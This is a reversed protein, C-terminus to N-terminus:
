RRVARGWRLWSAIAAPPGLWTLEAVIARVAGHGGGWEGPPLVQWEFPAASATMTWPWWLAVGRGPVGGSGHGFMDVLTHSMLLAGIFLGMALPTVGRRRALWAGLVGCLVAFTISHSWTRHWVSSPQGLVWVAFFDFDPAQPLVLTLGWAWKPGLPKLRPAMAAYVCVGALCHGLPLSMM